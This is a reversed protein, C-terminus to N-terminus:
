DDTLCVNFLKGYFHSTNFFILYFIANTLIRPKLGKTLLLLGEEKILDNFKVSHDIQKRVTIVEFCNSITGSIIASLISSITVCRYEYKEFLGKRKFYQLFMEHCTLSTTIATV